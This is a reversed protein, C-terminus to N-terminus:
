KQHEEVFECLEDDSMNKIINLALYVNENDTKLANNLWMALEFDKKMSKKEM